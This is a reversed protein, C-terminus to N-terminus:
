ILENGSSAESISSVEKMSELIQILGRRVVAHDDVVIIKM